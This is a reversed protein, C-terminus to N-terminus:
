KSLTFTIGKGILEANQIKLNNFETFDQIIVIGNKNKWKYKKTLNDYMHEYGHKFEAPVYAIIKYSITVNQEDFKLIRFKTLTGRGYKCTEGLYSSYTKGRLEIQADRCFILSLLVSFLVNKM